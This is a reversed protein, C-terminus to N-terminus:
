SKQIWKGSAEWAHEGATTQYFKAGLLHLGHWQPTGVSTMRVPIQFVLRLSGKRERSLDIKACESVRQADRPFLSLRLVEVIYHFLDATKRTIKPVPFKAEM